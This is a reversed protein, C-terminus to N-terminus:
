AVAPATLENMLFKQPGRQLRVTSSNGTEGFSSVSAQALHSIQQLDCLIWTLAPNSGTPAKNRGM